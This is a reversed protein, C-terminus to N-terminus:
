IRHSRIRCSPKLLHLISMQDFNITFLFLVRVWLQKNPSRMGWSPLKRGIWRTWLRVPPTSWCRGDCDRCPHIFAIVLLRLIGLYGYRSPRRSATSTLSSSELSIRGNRARRCRPPSRPTTLGSSSLRLQLTIDGFQDM